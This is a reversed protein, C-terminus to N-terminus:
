AVCFENGEPDTMAVFYAGDEDTTRLVGAGLAALEAVRGDM